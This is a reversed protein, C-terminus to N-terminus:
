SVIEILFRAPSVTQNPFQLFRILQLRKLRHVLLEGNLDGPLNDSVRNMLLTVQRGRVFMEVCIPSATEEM